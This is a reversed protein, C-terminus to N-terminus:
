VVLSKQVNCLLIKLTKGCDRGVSYHVQSARFRLDSIYPMSTWTFTHIYTHVHKRGLAERWVPPLRLGLYPVSAELYM